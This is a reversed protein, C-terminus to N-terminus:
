APRELAAAGFGAVVAGASASSTVAGTTVKAFFGDGVVVEVLPANAKEEDSCPVVNVHLSSAPAHFAHALGVDTPPRVTAGWENVTRAFSLAPLTPEALAIQFTAAGGSVVGGVTDNVLVGASPAVAVVADNPNAPPSGPRDNAQASSPSANATQVEGDVCLSRETPLWTKTTRAASGAPFMPSADWAQDIAAGGSGSRTTEASPLLPTVTFFAPLAGDPWVVRTTLPEPAAVNVRDPSAGPWDTDNVHAQLAPVSVATTSGPFRTASDFSDFLERVFGVLQRPKPVQSLDGKHPEARLPM